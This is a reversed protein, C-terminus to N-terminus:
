MRASRDIRRRATRMMSSHMRTTFHNQRVLCDRCGCHLIKQHKYLMGAKNRLEDRICCTGKKNPKNRILLCPKSRLLGEEYM